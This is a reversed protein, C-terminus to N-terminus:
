QMVEAKGKLEFIKKIVIIINYQLYHCIGSAFFEDNERDDNGEKDVHM